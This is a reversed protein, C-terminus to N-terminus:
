EAKVGPATKLITKWWTEVEKDDFEILSETAKPQYPRSYDGLVWLIDFQVRRIGSMASYCLAQKLYLWCSVISQIKKTTRKAEWIAPPDHLLLGDHTGFIDDREMEGPQWVLEDDAYHSARFEEWGVGLAMMLPYSESTMREFPFSELESDELKGAAIGLAKNIAQVHVGPSRPADVKTRISREAM